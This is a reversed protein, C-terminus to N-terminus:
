VIKTKMLVNDKFGKNNNYKTKSNLLKIVQNVESLKIFNMLLLKAMVMM